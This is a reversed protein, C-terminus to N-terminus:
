VFFIPEHLDQTPEGCTARGVDGIITAASHELKQLKLSSREYTRVLPGIYQFMFADLM